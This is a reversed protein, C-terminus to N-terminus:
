KKFDELVNKQYVPKLTNYLFATMEDPNLGFVYKYKKELEAAKSDTSGIVIKGNVVRTYIGEYFAGTLKLDPYGYGPIPNVINKMRAYEPDYYQKFSKGRSDSGEFLQEQQEHTIEDRSEYVSQEAIADLNSKLRELRERVERIGAM